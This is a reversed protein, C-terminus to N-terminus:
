EEEDYQNPNQSLLLAIPRTRSDSELAIKMIVALPVGLVAGMIGWAWAWFSVLILLVIPSMDLRQGSLQPEVFAGWVQQNAVLLGIMILATTPELMILAIIGPPVMSILAGIYPIFDLFFTISAWLFWGPIELYWLIMAAIIAQGLAVTARTIVYTNIGEGSNSAIKKFREVEDPYAAKIRNPLTEAELIIFLLFIFVTVASATFGAISGVFNTAFNTIVDINVLEQIGSTDLEYGFIEKNEFYKMKLELQTGIEDSTDIFDAVNSYLVQSALFIIFAFITILGGYALLPHGFRQELWNASPRILLFILTAIVLPQIVVKLHIIALISIFLIVLIDSVTSVPIGRFARTSTM